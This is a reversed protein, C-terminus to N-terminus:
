KIFTLTWIFIATVCLISILIRVGFLYKRIEITKVKKGVGLRIVLYFLLFIGITILLIEFKEFM